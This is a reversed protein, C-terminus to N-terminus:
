QLGLNKLIQWKLMFKLWFQLKKMYSLVRRANENPVALMPYIKHQGINQKYKHSLFVLFVTAM